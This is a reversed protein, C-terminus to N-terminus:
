AGSAARRDACSPECRSAAACYSRASQKASPISEASRAPSWWTEGVLQRQHVPPLLGGPVAPLGSATADPRSRPSSRDSGGSARESGTAARGHPRPWRPRPPRGGSGPLRQRRGGLQGPGIRVQCQLPDHGAVDVVPDAQRLLRSVQGLAEGLRLDQAVREVGHGAGVGRDTLAPPVQEFARQLDGQVLSELFLDPPGVGVHIRRPLLLTAEPLDFGVEHVAEGVALVM